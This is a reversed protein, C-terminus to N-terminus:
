RPLANPTEHQKQGERQQEGGGQEAPDECCQMQPSFAPRRTRYVPRNVPQDADCADDCQQQRQTPRRAARGHTNTVESADGRRQQRDGKDQRNWDDKHAQAMPTDGAKDDASM